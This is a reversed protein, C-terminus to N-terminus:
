PSPRRRPSPSGSPGRDRGPSHRRGWCTRRSPASRLACLQRSQDAGVVAVQFSLPEGQRDDLAAHRDIAVGVIHRHLDGRDLLLPLVGVPALEPVLRALFVRDGTVWTALSLPM